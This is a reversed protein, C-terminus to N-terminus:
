ISRYSIRFIKQATYLEKGIMFYDNGIETIKSCNITNQQYHKEGDKTLVTVEVAGSHLVNIWACQGVNLKRLFSYSQANAGATTILILGILTIKLAKIFDQM